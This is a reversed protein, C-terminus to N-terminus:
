FDELMAIYGEEGIVWLHNGARTLATFAVNSYDSIDTIWTRGGDTSRLIVGQKGSTEHVFGCAIIKDSTLFMVDSLYARTNLKTWSNDPGKFALVGYTGELGSSGGLVWLRKDALNGARRFFTQSPEEPVVAVERWQKGNNSAAFLHGESNLVVLGLSHDHYAFELGGGGKPLTESVVEWLTGANTTHLVVPDDQLTERKISRSGVAWGEQSSVFFVRGLQLAERSYQTLWTNGGDETKMLWAKTENPQLVDSSMRVVSIWGSLSDIFFSASVEAKPPIDVRRHQWTEGGDATLHIQGARSVVWGHTQDIFQITSLSEHNGLKKVIWEKAPEVSVAMAENRTVSSQSTETHTTCGLYAVSTVLVMLYTYM